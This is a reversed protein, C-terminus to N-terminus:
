TREECAGLPRERDGQTLSESALEGQTLSENALESM